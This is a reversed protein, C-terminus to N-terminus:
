EGLARLISETVDVMSAGSDIQIQQLSELSSPVFADQGIVVPIVRVGLQTAASVERDVWKSPIDSSLVVVADTSRMTREIEIDWPAGPELDYESRM